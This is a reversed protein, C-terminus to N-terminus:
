YISKLYWLVYEELVFTQMDSSLLEIKCVNSGLHEKFSRDFIAINRITGVYPTLLCKNAIQSHPLEDSIREPIYSEFSLVLKENQVNKGKFLPIGDTVLNYAIYKTYEFGALKTVFM